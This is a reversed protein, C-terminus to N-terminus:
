LPEIVAELTVFGRWAECICAVTAQALDGLYPCCTQRQAGSASRFLCAPVELEESDAGLQRFDSFGTNNPVSNGLTLDETVRCDGLFFPPPAVYTDPAEPLSSSVIRARRRHVTARAGKGPAFLHRTGRLSGLHDTVPDRWTQLPRGPGGRASAAGCGSAEPGPRPWAQEREVRRTAPAVPARWEGKVRGVAARVGAGRGRPWAGSWKSRGALLGANGRLGPRGEGKVQEMAQGPVGNFRIRGSRTGM